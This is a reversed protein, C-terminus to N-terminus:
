DISNVSVVNALCLTGEYVLRPYDALRTLGIFLSLTEGSSLQKLEPCAYCNHLQSEIQDIIKRVGIAGHHKM